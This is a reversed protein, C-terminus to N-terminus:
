LIKNKNVQMVSFTNEENRRKKKKELFFVWTKDDCKMIVCSAETKKKDVTIHVRGSTCMLVNRYVFVFM